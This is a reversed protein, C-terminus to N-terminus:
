QVHGDLVACTPTRQREERGTEEARGHGSRAVVVVAAAAVTGSPRHQRNRLHRPRGAAVSRRDVSPARMPHQHSPVSEPGGEGRFHFARSIEADDDDDDDDDDDLPPPFFITLATILEDNISL